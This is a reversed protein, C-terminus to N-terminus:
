PTQGLQLVSELFRATLPSPSHGSRVAVGIERLRARALPVATVKRGSGRLVLEPMISVGLGQEVMALIAFDDNVTYQYNPRVGEERFIRGIEEDRDEQICIYPDLVFREMPFCPADALPHDAPVVAVLRDELLPITDLGPGAPLSLFGCDVLGRRVLEEVEAFEWKSVLEFRIGPYRTLFGKLISPLLHISVSTFTGVRLTGRTMGHLEAVQEELEKGANCVGRLYPLLAEGSPTLAVGNRGRVLLELGWDEELDSIIRSVASQTYGMAEAARTIGGLEVTKLLVQYKTLNM